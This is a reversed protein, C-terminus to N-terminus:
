LGLVSKGQKFRIDTPINADNIKKLDAALVPDIVSMKEIMKSTGDYDGNGQLTLIEGGLSSIAATMKDFDVAYTGTAENRTFAGKEKFYNFTLMNAKGHASAAGFRVSRFIGAMFTVYNDMLDKNTIEGMKTLQLVQYVGLIDAKAEEITSYKEKLAGRVDGKKNITNKIGLGHSVEHFMVNEFFADFKINKQQNPAILIKGIPELIQEFKYRMSNKLQLKRSGKELQVRPDNPLNIAITKGACNCDGQYYVADYVGLDSSSGPVEAKYKADVPLLQQLKPLLSAYHALKNTWEQDKILIFAEHAAKYNYRADEYNEIPGVVFDINNNKMDMWAMDSSLYEDTLLAEARLELYNKFGPDEALAAAKKILNAAREVKEKYAIHYPVVKLKGDDGRQILTYLSTKSPDELADFEEETMDKPYFNAGKPKEGFNPLFAIENNLRDWPGYNIEVFQKIGQDSCTDLLDAKNGYAQEWFIEDIITAADFLLGLLEKDKPSLASIDSKLEVEAFADVKSQMPSTQPKNECSSLLIGVPFLFMFFKKM